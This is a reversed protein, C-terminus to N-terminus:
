KGLGQMEMNPWDEMDIYFIVGKHMYIDELKMGDWIPMVTAYRNCPLKVSPCCRIRSEMERNNPCSSCWDDYTSTGLHRYKRQKSSHRHDGSGLGIFDIYTRIQGRM